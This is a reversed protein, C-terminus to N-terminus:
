RLPALVQGDTGAGALVLEAWVLKGTGALTRTGWEASLAAILLLGRGHESTYNVTQQEPIGSGGDTLEIRVGAPRRELVLESSSRAHTVANATMETVVLLADEALPGLGWTRLTAEVFRRAVSASVLEQPLDLTARQDDRSAPTTDAV